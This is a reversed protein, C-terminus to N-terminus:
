LFFTIIIAPLENTLLIDLGLQLFICFCDRCLYLFDYTMCKKPILDSCNTYKSTPKGDFIVYTTSGKMDRFKWEVRADAGFDASPTCYLDAGTSILDIMIVVNSPSLCAFYYIIFVISKRFYM